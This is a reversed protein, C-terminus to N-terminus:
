VDELAAARGPMKLLPVMREHAGQPVPSFVGESNALVTGRENQIEARARVERTGAAIMEAYVVIPEGGPVPRRFRTTIEKTLCFRHLAVSVAWVSAEDLLATVIGGHVRGPYGEFCCDIETRLVVRGEELVFRAGLGNANSEGCVFCTDSWPLQKATM